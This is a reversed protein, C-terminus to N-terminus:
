NYFVAFVANIEFFDLCMAVDINGKEKHIDKHVKNAKHHLFM